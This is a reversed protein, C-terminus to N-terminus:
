ATRFALGYSGSQRLVPFAKYTDSGYTIEGAVSLGAYPIVMFPMVGCPFWQGTVSNKLFVTPQAGVRKDSFSNYRVLYQLNSFNGQPATSNNTTLNTTVSAAVSSNVQAKYWHYVTLTASYGWVGKWYQYNSGTTIYDWWYTSTNSPYYQMPWLFSIEPEIQLEPLLDPLGFGFSTIAVTYLGCLVVIFRANGFFYAGDAFAADPLSCHDYALTTNVQNQLHPWTSSTNYTPNNPDILSYELDGRTSPTIPNWRFRYVLNQVGYGTSKLELFDYSGATWGYVGGGTDTWTKDHQIETTWGLGSAFSELKVLLDYGDSITSERTYTLTSIAM